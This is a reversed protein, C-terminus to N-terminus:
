RETFTVAVEVDGDVQTRIGALLEVDNASGQAQTVLGKGQVKANVLLIQSDFPFRRLLFVFIIAFTEQIKRFRGDKLKLLRIVWTRRM